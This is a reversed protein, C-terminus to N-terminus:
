HAHGHSHSSVDHEDVEHRAFWWAAVITTLPVALVLGISGVIIRAIEAAIVEQNLSFTLPAESTAFLLVLPLAAGVYALALTNVLSGVHDRGVRIARNYLERTGFKSNAAKLEQVVSAQTISVDDLVGLIGVIISGLLLASFDLQGGTAFNLYVSADSGFGTLRMAGVFVFAIWSTILVASITGVFATISRVNVGHTGFLALALVVSAIGLSSLIPDFGNLLAPVLAFVIAGISLGLSFLARVGQWGAFGVLLIVFLVILWLLEGQRNVDKLVYLELGDFTKLQNLFISDGPALLVLDNEFTVIEVQEPGEKIRAKVTQVTTSADTGMIREEREDEVEVVEAKIIAQLEQYAEQAEVLGLPFALFFSVLLLKSISM